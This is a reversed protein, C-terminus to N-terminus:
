KTLSTFSQGYTDLDDKRVKPELLQCADAKIQIKVTISKTVLTYHLCGEEDADVDFLIDSEPAVVEIAPELLWSSFPLSAARSQVLAFFGSRYTQFRLSRTEENYDIGEQSVGDTTWSTSPADWVVIKREDDNPVVYVSGPVHFNVRLPQQTAVAGPDDGFPMRQLESTLVNATRLIWGPKVVKPAPPLYMLEVSMVGGLIMDPSPESLQFSVPDYPYYTARVAIHQLNLAKPIDVQLGIDKFTIPKVPGRFAKIIVNAWIGVKLGADQIEEMVLEEKQFMDAHNVLHLTAANLKAASTQRLQDIKEECSEMTVSDGAAHAGALQKRVQKVVAETTVCGALAESLATPLESGSISIFTNIDSESKEDPLVSCTTFKDWELNAAKKAEMEALRQDFEEDELRGKAIEETLTEIEQKRFEAQAAKLKREEEEKRLREEELRQM